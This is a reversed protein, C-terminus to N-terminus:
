NGGKRKLNFPVINDALCLTVMWIVGEVFKHAHVQHIDEISVQVALEPTPSVASEIGTIISFITIEFSEDEFFVGVKRWDKASTELGSEERFERVMATVAHEGPEVAGGLGNLKGEMWRPQDKLILLVHDRHTNFAFGLCYKNMNHNHGKLTKRLQGRVNLSLM